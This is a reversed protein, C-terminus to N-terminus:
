SVLNYKRKFNKIWLAVSEASFFKENWCLKVHCHRVPVVFPPWKIRFEAMAKDLRSAVIDPWAANRTNVTRNWRVPHISVEFLRTSVGPGPFPKWNWIFYRGISRILFTKACLIVRALQDHQGDRQNEAFGGLSRINLLVLPPLLVFVSTSVSHTYPGYVTILLDKMCWFGFLWSTFCVVNKWYLQYRIFSVFIIAIQGSLYM